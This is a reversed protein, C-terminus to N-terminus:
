PNERAALTRMPDRGNSYLRRRIAVVSTFLATGISSMGQELHTLAVADRGSDVSTAASASRAHRGIGSGAVGQGLRGLWVDSGGDGTSRAGFPSRLLRRSL